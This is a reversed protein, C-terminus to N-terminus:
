KLSVKKVFFILAIALLNSAGLILFISSYSLKLSFLYILLGSGIVMFFSNIINNGAIYQSRSDEPSKQQMLTYLPVTFIGAFASFLFMDLSVRIGALTKFAGYVDASSTVQGASFFLDFLGVSMGIAGTMIWRKQVRGKSLREGLISGVAVGITFIALFATVTKESGSLVEKVFTPLINLIVAGVLWFWSIGLIAQLLIPKKVVRFLIDFTPRIPDVRINIYTSTAKTYPIALSVLFGLISILTVTVALWIPNTLLGGVVLGVLISVFTGGEVVANGAMLDNKDLLEPLVSYKAPGFFASQMGMMFLTGLLLPLHGMLFGASGVIMVLIEWFKTAQMLRAKSYRDSLLGAYASFLFFPLIFIALAVSVLSERSVGFVPGEGFAIMMTIGTKFVNDNFAGLFQTWFVPWFQRSLLLRGYNTRAQYM